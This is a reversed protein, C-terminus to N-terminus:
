APPQPAQDAPYINWWVSAPESRASMFRMAFSRAYNQADELTEWEYYGSFDGNLPDVLWCKSRFGPLGLFFIMPLLSFWRNVWPPMHAVHFHPIFVAGPRAAQGAQPHLVAYRFVVFRQGRQDIFQQGVRSRDFRLRGTLLYGLSKWASTFPNLSM